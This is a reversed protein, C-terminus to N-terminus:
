FDIKQFGQSILNAALILLMIFVGPFIMLYPDQTFYSQGQSLMAGWEPSPPQVGLGLYGLAAIMLVIDSAALGIIVVARTWINPLVVRALIYFESAGASLSAQVYEREREQLTYSRLFRVFVPLETSILAVFLSPITGGLVSVLIIALVISPFTLLTDAIGSILHDWKGKKYGAILGLPLALIFSIALSGATIGIDSRAAWIIRSFVDRGLQDTGLWHHITPSQLADQLYSTTPSYPSIIPALAAMMVFFAFLTLGVKAEPPMPKHRKDPWTAPTDEQTVLDTM